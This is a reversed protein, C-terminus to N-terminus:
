PELDLDPSSGANSGSKISTTKIATLIANARDRYRGQVLTAFLNWQRQTEKIALERAIQFYSYGGSMKKGEALDANDKSDQLGSNLETGSTQGVYGSPIKSWDVLSLNLPDRRNRPDELLLEVYNSRSYFDQATHLMLALHRLCQAHNQFDQDADAAYNLAMKKERDIYALAANFNNNDFHRRSDGAAEKGAADQSQSAQIMFNLNPESISDRLAERIIEAHIDGQSNGQADFSSFALSPNYVPLAAIALIVLQKLQKNLGMHM